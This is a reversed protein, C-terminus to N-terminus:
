KKIRDIKILELVNEKQINIFMYKVDVTVLKINKGIEIYVLERRNRIRFM